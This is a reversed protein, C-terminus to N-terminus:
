QKRWITYKVDKDLIVSQWKFIPQALWGGVSNPEYKRKRIMKKGQPQLYEDKDMRRLEDIVMEGKPKTKGDELQVWGTVVCSQNLEFQKFIKEAIQLYDDEEYIRIM